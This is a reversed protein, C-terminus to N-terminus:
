QNKKVAELVQKAVEEKVGSTDIMHADPDEEGAKEYLDFVKKQASISSVPLM